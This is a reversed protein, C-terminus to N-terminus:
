VPTNLPLKYVMKDRSLSFLDSAADCRLHVLERGRRPPGRLLHNNGYSDYPTHSTCFFSVCLLAYLMHLLLVFDTTIICYNVSSYHYARHGNHHHVDLTTPPAIHQIGDRSSRLSLGSERTRGSPPRARTPLPLASASCHVRRAM